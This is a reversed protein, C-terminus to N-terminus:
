NSLTYCLANHFKIKEPQSHLFKSGCFKLSCTLVMSVNKVKTLESTLHPVYLTDNTGPKGESNPPLICVGDQDPVTQDELFVDDEISDFYAEAM